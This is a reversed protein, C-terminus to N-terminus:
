WFWRGFVRAIGSLLKAKGMNWTQAFGTGHEPYQIKHKAILITAREFRDDAEKRTLKGIGKEHLLYASDHASCAQSYEDSLPLSLPGAGCRPDPDDPLAGPVPLKKM